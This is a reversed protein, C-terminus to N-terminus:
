KQTQITIVNTTTTIKIISDDNVYGAKTKGSDETKFYVYNWVKRFKRPSASMLVTDKDLVEIVPSSDSPELYINAKETTIKYKKSLASITGSLSFLLFGSIIFIISIKKTSLKMNNRIM